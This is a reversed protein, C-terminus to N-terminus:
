GEQEPATMTLQGFHSDYSVPRSSIRSVLGKLWQVWVIEHWRRRPHTSAWVRRAYNEREVERLREEYRACTGYLSEWDM